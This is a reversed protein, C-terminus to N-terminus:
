NVGQTSTLSIPINGSTEVDEVRNNPDNVSLNIGGNIRNERIEERVQRSATVEPSPIVKPQEAETKVNANFGFDKVKDLAGSALVGIKGPLKSLLFLMAKLPRLLFQVLATGADKFMDGLSTNKFYGIVKQWKQLLWDSIAGWNKVAFVILGIAAIVALIPWLGANIAIAFATQATTALWTAATSVVTMTKYAGLAIGNLAIKRTMVGYIASKAGLAVSHAITAIKSAILVGKMLGYMGILGVGVVIVKDMNDGAFDMLKGLLRLSKNNTNTALTANLFSNKIQQLKVGLSASNVDAQRQAESTGTVAQTFAKYKDINNLLIAGAEKNELGFVKVLATSDKSIKSLELLRQSLPLTKDSVIDTNVGFKELQVIAEKPLAGVASMKTLINRLKTGAEAGKLNKEAFTQVLGVSEEMSVNFANAGAGFQLIANTTLPIASAGEKAGAALANITRGSQDAKLNFQNMVGTLSRSTTELDLRSAKSLTIVADTTMGLADVNKLLEPKASGVLEFAKAVEAGGKKTRKSVSLIKQELAVLDKGTAGTIASVSNLSQNYELNNRAASTFLSGIGIGLGIKSLNSLKKFSSNIRTDFRQVAATTSKGWLRVNRTMQKVVGSFNDKAFFNAAMKISAAM